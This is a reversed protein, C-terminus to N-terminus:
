GDKGGELLSMQMDTIRQPTVITDNCITCCRGECIPEANHGDEWIAKGLTAGEKTLNYLAKYKSNKIKELENHQTILNNFYAQKDATDEKINSEMSSVLDAPQEYNLQSLNIGSQTM